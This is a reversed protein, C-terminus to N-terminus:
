KLKKKKKQEVLKYDKSIYWKPSHKAGVNINMHLKQHVSEHFSGIVVNM